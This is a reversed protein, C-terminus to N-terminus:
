SRERGSASAALYLELHRRTDYLEVSRRVTEGATASTTVAENIEYINVNTALPTPSSGRPQSIM